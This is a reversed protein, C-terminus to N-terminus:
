MRVAAALAFAHATFLAALAVLAFPRHRGTAYTVATALALLLVTALAQVLTESLKEPLVGSSRALTGVLLGPLLVFRHTWLEVCHSCERLNESALPLVHPVYACAVAYLVSRGPGFDERDLGLRSFWKM